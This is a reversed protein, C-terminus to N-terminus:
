SNEWQDPRPQAGLERMERHYRANSRCTHIYDLANMAIQLMVGLVFLAIVGLVVGGAIQLM